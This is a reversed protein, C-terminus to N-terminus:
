DHAVSVEADLQTTGSRLHEEGSEDDHSRRPEEEERGRRRQADWELVLDLVVESRKEDAVSRVKELGILTESCRSREASLRELWGSHQRSLAHLRALEAQSASSTNSTQVLSLLTRLRAESRRTSYHLYLLQRGLLEGREEREVEAHPGDGAVSREGPNLRSGREAEEIRTSAESVDLGEGEARRYLERVEDAWAEQLDMERKAQALLARSTEQAALEDRLLAEREIRLAHLRSVCEVRNRGNALLQALLTSISRTTSDLLADHRDFHSLLLLTHVPVLLDPGRRRRASPLTAPASASPSSCSM